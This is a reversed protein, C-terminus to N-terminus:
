EYNWLKRAAWSKHKWIKWTPKVESRLPLRWFAGCFFCFCGCDFGLHATLLLPTELPQDDSWKMDNGNKHMQEHMKGAKWTPSPWGGPASLCRSSSRSGATATPPLTARSGFSAAWICNVELSCKVLLSYKPLAVVLILNPHIQGMINSNTDRNKQHPERLRRSCERELALDYRLLCVKAACLLWYM